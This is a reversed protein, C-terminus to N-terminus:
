QVQQRLFDFNTASIMQDPDRAGIIIGECGPHEASEEFVIDIIPHHSRDTDFATFVNIMNQETMFSGSSLPQGAPSMCFLQVVDGHLDTNLCITRVVHARDTITTLAVLQNWETSEAETARDPVGRRPAAAGRRSQKKPAM